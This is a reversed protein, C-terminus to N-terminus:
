QSKPAHERTDLVTGDPARLTAEDRDNNWIPDDSGLYLALQQRADGQNDGKGSHVKVTHGVPLMVSPFTFSRGGADTLTYGALDIDEGGVNCVRLYEGNVNLRDDGSANAHFSTIHLAGQYRSTAWIGRDAEQARQQAARLASLDSDDPPIIFLHGLGKELLMESLNGEDTQIGAVVRGYSDRPNESGLLLRVTKGLVFESTADRAEPGLEEAPKLEPTNVWRLRIKDGTVLTLTDGDYVSQVQAEAPPPPWGGPPPEAALAVLAFLLPATM